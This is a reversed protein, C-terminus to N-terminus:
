TTYIKHLQGPTLSYPKKTTIAEINLNTNANIQDDLNLLSCQLTSQPSPCFGNIIWVM